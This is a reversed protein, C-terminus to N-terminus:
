QPEGSKANNLIDTAKRVARILERKEGDIESARGGVLRFAKEYEMWSEYACRVAEAVARGVIFQRQLSLPPDQRGVWLEIRTKASVFDAVAEIVDNGVMNSGMIKVALNIAVSATPVRLEEPAEWHPPQGRLAGWGESAM